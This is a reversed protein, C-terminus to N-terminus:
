VGPAGGLWGAGVHPLCPRQPLLASPRVGLRPGQQHKRDLDRPVPHPGGLWAELAEQEAPVYLSLRLPAGEPLARQNVIVHVSNPRRPRRPREDKRLYSSIDQTEGGAALVNLIDAVLAACETDDICVQKLSTRTGHRADLVGLLVPVTRALLDPIRSSSKAYWTTADPGSPDPEAINADEDLLQRFVLHALLFTGDDIVAVGRKEYQERVPRLAKRTERLIRVANWTEFVGPVTRFLPDYIGSSGREWLM